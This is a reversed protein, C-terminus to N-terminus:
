YLLRIVGILNYLHAVVFIVRVKPDYLWRLGQTRTRKVIVPVITKVRGWTTYLTYTDKSQEVLTPVVFIVRVNLDYLWCLGQIHPTEDHNRSRDNSSM